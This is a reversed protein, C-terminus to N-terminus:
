RDRWPRREQWDAGFQLTWEEDAKDMWYGLNRQTDESLVRWPPLDERSTIPQPQGGSGGPGGAIAILRTLVDVVKGLIQVQVVPSNAKGAQGAIQKMEALVAEADAIYAAVRPGLLRRPDAPVAGPPALELDASLVARVGDQVIPLLEERDDARPEEPKPERRKFNM